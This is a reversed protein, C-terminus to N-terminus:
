IIITISTCVSVQCSTDIAERLMQAHIDSQRHTNLGSVTGFGRDCIRCVYFVDIDEFNQSLTFLIHKGDKINIFMQKVVMQGKQFYVYKKRKIYAVVESIEYRFDTLNM